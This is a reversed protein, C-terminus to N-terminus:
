YEEAFMVTRHTEDDIIYIKGEFPKTNEVLLCTTTLVYKPEEQSHKLTSLKTETDYSFRFVQLYDPEIGTQKLVEIM